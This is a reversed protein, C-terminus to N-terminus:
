FENGDEDYIEDTKDLYELISGDTQRYELDDEAIRAIRDGAHDFCKGLTDGDLLGEWIAECVDEDFCVGTFGCVGPFKMAKFTKPRSYGHELLVRLFRALAKNGCDDCDVDIHNSRNYPGVHWNKVRIGLASAIKQISEMSEILTFDEPDNEISDRKADLVKAKAEDSLEAFCFLKTEKTRM